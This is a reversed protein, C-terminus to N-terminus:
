PKVILIVNNDKTNKWNPIQVLKAWYMRNYTDVLAQAEPFSGSDVDEIVYWGGRKLQRISHDLLTRNAHIAHYGDDIIIDFEDGCRRWIEAISAPDTQDCYLTRIRDEEFLVRRDIDAGYITALPFFERWGRLSAGPVGGPGMNYLVDTHNTGLGMEFVKRVQAIHDYWLFNYLTTYNHDPGEFRARGKDSGHRSMIECLSTSQLYIEGEFFPSLDIMVDLNALSLVLSSAAAM